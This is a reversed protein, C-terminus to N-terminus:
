TDGAPMAAEGKCGYIELRMCPFNHFELPKLRIYQTRIEMENFSPFPMTMKEYMPFISYVLMLHPDAPLESQEQHTPSQKIKYM